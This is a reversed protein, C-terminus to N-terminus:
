DNLYAALLRSNVKHQSLLSKILGELTRAIENNLYPEYSANDRLTKAMAEASSIIETNEM